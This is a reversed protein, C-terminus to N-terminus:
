RKAEAEHTVSKLHADISVVGPVSSVLARVLEAESEAHVNGDLVVAGHDVSVRVDEPSIWLSRKLVDDRIEREIEGDTRTFARLLDSRTLMGVLRGEDLVPLRHVGEDLMRAAAESVSRSADIVIAPSSMAQDVTVADRRRESEGPLEFLWPVRGDGPEARREKVVIDSESIVGIVRGREDVVPMGGIDHEVLRRAAEHLSADRGTTIVDANMLDRVRMPGDGTAPARARTERLGSPRMFQLGTVHRGDREATRIAKAAAAALDPAEVTMEM